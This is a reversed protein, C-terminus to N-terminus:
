VGKRRLFCNTRNLVCQVVTDLIPAAPTHDSYCTLLLIAIQQQLDNAVAGAHILLLYADQLGTDTFIFVGPQSQHILDQMM